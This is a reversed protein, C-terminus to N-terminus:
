PHLVSGAIELVREWPIGERQEVALPHETPELEILPREGVPRTHVHTKLHLTPPAYGPLSTCLWGFYPPESERGAQEWVESMRTFSAESLSVWVLWAFTEDRGRLPIELRGRVFFHTEGERRIVCLEPSLEAHQRRDDPSLALYPDPADPGYVLPPGPHEEGCTRCLYTDSV